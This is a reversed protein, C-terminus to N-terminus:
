MFSLLIEAMTLDSFLGGVRAHNSSKKEGAILFSSQPLNRAHTVSLGPRAFQQVSQLFWLVM